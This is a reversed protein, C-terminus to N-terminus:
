RTAATSTWCRSSWSRIPPAPRPRRRSHAPPPTCDPVYIGFGLDQKIQAFFRSFRPHPLPALATIVNVSSGDHPCQEASIRLCFDVM